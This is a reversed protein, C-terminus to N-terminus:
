IKEKVYFVHDKIECIEVNTMQAVYSGNVHKAPSTYLNGNVTYSITGFGNELIPTAVVADVGVLDQQSVSNSLYRTRYLPVVVFKYLLFATLTSSLVSVIINVALPWNKLDGIIGMGGFVTIFSVVVIPKLPFVTFWPLDGDMDVDGDIDAFDLLNGM